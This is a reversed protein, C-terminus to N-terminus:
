GKAAAALTSCVSGKLDLTPLLTPVVEKMTIRSGGGLAEVHAELNITRGTNFTVAAVISGTQLNASSIQWNLGPSPTYQGLAVYLGAFADLTPLSPYEAFATYTEGAFFSGM